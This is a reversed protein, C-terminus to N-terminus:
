YHFRSRVFSPLNRQRVTATTPWTPRSSPLSGLSGPRGMHAGLHLQTTGERSGASHGTPEDAPIGTSRLWLRSHGAACISEIGLRPPRRHKWAPPVQTCPRVRETRLVLQGRIQRLLAPLLSQQVTEKWTYRLQAPSGTRLFPLFAFACHSLLVAFAAVSHLGDLASLSSGVREMGNEGGISASGDCAKGVSWPLPGLTGLTSVVSPRADM